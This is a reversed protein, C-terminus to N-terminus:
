STARCWPPQQGPDQEQGRRRRHLRGPRVRGRPLLRADRRDRRGGPRLGGPRLGRGRGYGHEAIREPVNKGCAIYDLFVLPKAGAASSTTSACPWATSAWPTTSTWSIPSACSPAWATPAPSWCPTPCTPATWSLCAASAAWGASAAPPEHHPRRAAEDTGRGQLGRHYGCRRRRLERFSSKQM